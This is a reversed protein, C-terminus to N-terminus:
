SRALRMVVEVHSTQPMLDLPYADTAHYGGAVLRTADRALTAVDCSVYVITPPSHRLIGEIAEPAGARPPDLAIADFPGAHRALAAAADAVLEAHDAVDSALVVWGNARYARTLNGGGAHLELLRGPGEGLTAAARAVLARNGSASAQAFDWAGSCLGPEVEIAARGIVKIGARGVIEGGRLWPDETAVAVEGKYNILLALEGDPPRAAVVVRYAADLAPELQPCSEIPVVDQNGSGYLGVVGRHVHFRARRRWGLPPCPDEVPHIRLGELKRLAGTVIALKAALQEARSVHQWQCGGCVPAPQRAGVRIAHPCIPDVRSAGAEVLEVVEARAYTSTTKLVRVKLRDGPATGPVFTVRGTGDRAVGEGGAALSDVTVDITPERNM